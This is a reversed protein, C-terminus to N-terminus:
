RIKEMNEHKNILDLLEIPLPEIFSWDNTDPNFKVLTIIDGTNPNVYSIDMMIIRNLDNFKELQIIINVAKNFDNLVTEFKFESKSVVLNCLRQRCLDPSNSHITTYATHGTNVAQLFVQGVDGDRIEGVIIIDPSRRLFHKLADALTVEGRGDINAHRAEVQLWLPKQLQIEINDEVSTIMRDDRIFDALANLTSTKGTDTGGSVIVNLGIKMFTKLLDAMKSNITKLAILDNMTMKERKFKRINFSFGQPSIADGSIAVRDGNPLRADEIPNLVDVRRNLPALIADIYNKVAERNKFKIDTLIKRGKKKVYIKNFEIVYIETIAPDDMLPQLIGFGTLNIIFNNVFHYRASTSPFKFGKVNITDNIRAIMSNKILPNNKFTNNLLSDSFELSIVKRIEDVANEIREPFDDSIILPDNDQFSSVNAPKSGYKMKMRYNVDFFQNAM